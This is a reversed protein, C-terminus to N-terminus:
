HHATQPEFKFTVPAGIYRKLADGFKQELQDREFRSWCLLETESVPRVKAFWTLWLTDNGNMERFTDRVKAWKPFAAEWGPGTDVAPSGVPRAPAELFGEFRRQNLWTAAHAAPHPERRGKSQDALFKRYATVAAMVRAQEPLLGATKLKTWAKAAEAKSMNPSRPYSVWFAEFDDPYGKSVTATPEPPVGPGVLSSPKANTSPLLTIPVRNPDKDPEGSTYRKAIKGKNGWAGGRREVDARGKEAKEQDRVMRRSFIIGEDTESYVGAAALEDLWGVLDPLPDGLVRALQEPTPKKGNLLLYGILTSDHMLGLMDVWVSRAARSVMRLSPEGRWDSPYWKFWPRKKQVEHTAEHTM